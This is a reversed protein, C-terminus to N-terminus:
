CNMLLAGKEQPTGKLLASFVSRMPKLPDYEASKRLEEVNIEGIKEIKSVPIDEPYIYEFAHKRQQFLKREKVSSGTKLHESVMEFRDEKTLAPYLREAELEIKDRMFRIGKESLISKDLKDMENDIYQAKLLSQEQMKKNKLLCFDRMESFLRNQSRIRINEINLAETPIKLMVLDSSGKATQFLLDSQLSSRGWDSSKRWRKFFNTLEVAFVGEGFLNDKSTRLVGSTMISEYNKKNTLHYLFRPIIKSM